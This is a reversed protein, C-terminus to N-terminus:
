QLKVLQLFINDSLNCNLKSCVLPSTLYTNGVRFDVEYYEDYKAIRSIYSQYLAKKTPFGYLKTPYRKGPMVFLSDYGNAVDTPYINEEISRGALTDLRGLRVTVTKGMELFALWATDSTLRLIVKKRFNESKILGVKRIAVIQITDSNKVFKSWSSRRIELLSDCNCTQGHGTQTLLILLLTIFSSFNHARM